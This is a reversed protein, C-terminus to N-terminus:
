FRKRRQGHHKIGENIHTFFECRQVMTMGEPWAGLKLDGDRKQLFDIKEVHDFFHRNSFYLHKKRKNNLYRGYKLHRIDHLTMDYISLIINKEEKTFKDKEYMLLKYCYDRLARRHNLVGAYGLFHYINGRSDRYYKKCMM